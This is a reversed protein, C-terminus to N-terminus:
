LPQGRPALDCALHRAEPALEASCAAGPAAPGFGRLQDLSLDDSAQFQGAPSQEALPAPQERTEEVEPRLDHGLYFGLSSRLEKNLLSASSRGKTMAAIGVQSDQLRVFRVGRCSRALQQEAAIAARVEGVNIHRHGRAKRVAGWPKFPLTRCIEERDEWLLHSSYSEGPLEEAEELHGRGRLLASSPVLLKNWLGKQVTRRFAEASFEPTVKCVAAAEFRDSADSCVIWPAAPTKM